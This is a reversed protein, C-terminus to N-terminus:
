LLRTGGSDIEFETTFVNRTSSLASSIGHTFTPVAPCRSEPGQLREDKEGYFSCEATVEM